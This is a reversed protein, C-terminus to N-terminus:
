VRRLRRTVAVLGGTVLLPFFSKRLLKRLDSADLITTTKWQGLSGDIELRGDHFRVRDVRYEYDGVPSSIKM